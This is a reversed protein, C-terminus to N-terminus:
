HTDKFVMRLEDDVENAAPQHCDVLSSHLLKVVGMHDHFEGVGEVVPM